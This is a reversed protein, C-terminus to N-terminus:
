IHHHKFYLINWLEKYQTAFHAASSAYDQLKIPDINSRDLLKAPDDFNQKLVGKNLLSKTRATMVFYHTDDQSYTETILLPGSGTVLFRSDNILSISISLFLLLLSSIKADGKVFKWFPYMYHFSIFLHFNQIKLCFDFSKWGFSKTFANQFCDNNIEVFTEFNWRLFHGFVSFFLLIFQIFDWIFISWLSCTDMEININLMESFFLLNIFM